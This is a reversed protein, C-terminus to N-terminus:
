YLFIFLIRVIQSDKKEYETSKNLPLESLLIVYERMMIHLLKRCATHVKQCYPNTHRELM